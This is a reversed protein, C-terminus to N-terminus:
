DSARWRVFQPSSQFEEVAILIQHASEKADEEGWNDGQQGSIYYSYLHDKIVDMLKDYKTM